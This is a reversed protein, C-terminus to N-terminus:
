EAGPRISGNEIKTTTHELRENIFDDIYDVVMSEIHKLKVAEDKTFRGLVFDVDGINERTGNDIGVRIRHYNASIHNNLSKIGNNGADSGEKRTRVTGIPLALDDHLVIFDHASDLKYFDLIRRASVGTENYYTLPKVLLIKESDKTIEAVLANFKKNEHWVADHQEGYLDLMFFGVNHRTASYKSEPNGQSFIIKMSDKNYTM